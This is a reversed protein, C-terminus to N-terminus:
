DNNHRGVLSDEWDCTGKKFSSFVGAKTIKHGRGHWLNVVREPKITYLYTDGDNDTSLWNFKEDVHDWNISPKQLVVRYPINFSWAPNRVPKWFGSMSSYFEIKGGDVWRKFLALKEDKPLEGFPVLNGM